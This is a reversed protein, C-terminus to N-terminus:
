VAGPARRRLRHSSRLCSPEGECRGSRRRSTTSRSKVSGDHLCVRVSCCADQRRTPRVQRAIPRSSDHRLRRPTSIGGAPDFVPRVATATEQPGARSQGAAGTRAALLGHDSDRAQPVLAVPRVRHRSADPQVAGPQQRCGLGGKRDAPRDGPLTVTRLGTGTAQETSM